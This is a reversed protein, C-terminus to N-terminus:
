LFLHVSSVSDLANETSITHDTVPIELKIPLKLFIFNIICKILKFDIRSFSLCLNRLYQYKNQYCSFM